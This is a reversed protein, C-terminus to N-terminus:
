VEGVQGIRGGFFWKRLLRTWLCGSVIVLVAFVPITTLILFETRYFVYGIPYIRNGRVRYISKEHDRDGVVLVQLVQSRTRPDDELVKVTVLSLWDGKRRDLERNARRVEERELYYDYEGEARGTDQWVVPLTDEAGPMPSTNVMQRMEHESLGDVQYTDRAHKIRLIASYSWEHVMQVPRDGQTAVICFDGMQIPREIPRPPFKASELASLGNIYVFGASVCTLTVLLVVYALSRLFRIAMCATYLGWWLRDICRGKGFRTRNGYFVHFM